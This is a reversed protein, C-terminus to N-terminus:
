FPLFYGILMMIFGFLAAQTKTSKNSEPRFFLFYVAIGIPLLFAELTINFSGLLSYGVIKWGLNDEEEERNKYIFILVFVVIITPILAFQFTWNM